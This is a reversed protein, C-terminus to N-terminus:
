KRRFLPHPHGGCVIPIRATRAAETSPVPTADLVSSGSSENGTVDVTKFQVDYSTGNVLGDLTFTEIDPDVEGALVWPGAAAGEGSPHEVALSPMRWDSEYMRWPDAYLQRVDAASLARGHWIRVGFIDGVFVEASGGGSATRQGLVLERTGGFITLATTFNGDVAQSVGNVYIAFVGAAFTAVVHYLGGAALNAGTTQQPENNEGDSSVQFEIEDGDLYLRWSRNGSVPMYKGILGQIGTVGTPRIVIEVSLRDTGDLLNSAPDAVAVRDEVNGRFILGPGHDGVIWDASPIMSTGFVGHLRNGSVDELQKQRVDWFPWALALGQWLHRADPPVQIPSAAWAPPKGHQYVHPTM